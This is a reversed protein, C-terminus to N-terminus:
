NFVAQYQITGDENRAIPVVFIDVDGLADHRLPLIQQNFQLDTRGGKFFLSFPERKKGPHDHSPLPEAKTLTFNEEAQPHNLAFVTDVHPAFLEITATAIDIM